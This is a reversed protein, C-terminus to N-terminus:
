KDLDMNEKKEKEERQLEKIFQEKNIGPPVTFYKLKGDNWDNIVLRACKDLDVIGGKKYKGMKEGILYLFKECSIEKNKLIGVDLKYVNILYDLNMKDIIKRVVEIPEKIEETRIVNFLVYDENKNLVVGPCDLLRINNDLTVEQIGKTFGPNSSVKVNKGRTLSNILSSKGVNPFGIVGVNINTKLNGESRCYNKLLNLLEESGITRNSQLIKEVYDKKEKINKTFLTSQSLNSNQTQTNSKFLITAYERQLYKQWDLANQLPILDIKNLIFIIKKEDKRRLISSEIEKSRTNLPDRADLVELIVDSNEIVQELIKMYQKKSNDKNIENLKKIQSLEKNSILNNDNQYDYLKENSTTELSMQYLNQYVTPNNEHLKKNLNNLLEM